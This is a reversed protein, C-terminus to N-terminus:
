IFKFIKRMLRGFLIYMIIIKNQKNSNRIKIENFLIQFFNHKKSFGSKGLDGFIEKGSTHIGKFKHKVIMRYILDQDAQIKYNTNLYGTKKLSTMKIFLSVVSSPIVNFNRYIIDPNYGGYLRGDKKITGCIFDKKPNKKIYNSLIKMSNLFLMNSSDVVGVFRGNALKYGKNWADWMGKDKESIWLDIKHNYEKLKKVTQSGSGGDIIILEVNKYSQNLISKISSVLTKSKYNPMIITILPNNETDKKFYGKTILGGKEVSKNLLIKKIKKQISPSM